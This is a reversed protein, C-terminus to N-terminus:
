RHLAPTHRRVNRRAHALKHCAVGLQNSLNVIMASDWHEQRATDLRQELWAAHNRMRQLEERARHNAPNRESRWAAFSAVLVIVFVVFLILGAPM